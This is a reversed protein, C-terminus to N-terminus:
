KSLLSLQSTLFSSTSSLGSLLTDLATFQATYRAQLQEMRLEHADRQRTVDKSQSNLSDTRGQILGDSKVFRDLSASLRASM